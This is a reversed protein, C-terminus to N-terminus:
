GALRLGRPLIRVTLAHDTGNPAVAKVVDDNESLLV